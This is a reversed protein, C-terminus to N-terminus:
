DFIFFNFSTWISTKVKMKKLCKNVWNNCTNFAGYKGKAPYFNDFRTYRANEIPSFSLFSEFIYKKMIKFQNKSIKIKKIKKNSIDKLDVYCVKLVVENLGFIAKFLTKPHLNKWMRTEIYFGKDGWGISVYKKEKLSPEFGEFDFKFYKKPIVFDTHICDGILFIELEDELDKKKFNNIKIIPVFFSIFIYFPLFPLLVLLFICYIIYSFVHPKIM